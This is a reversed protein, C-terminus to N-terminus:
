AGSRTRCHMLALLIERSKHYIKSKVQEFRERHIKAVTKHKEKLDQLCRTLPVTIKLETDEELYIQNPVRDELSAKMQKITKIIRHAEENLESKESHFTM